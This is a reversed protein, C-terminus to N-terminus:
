LGDKRKLVGHKEVMKEYIPCDGKEEDSCMSKDKIRKNPISALCFWKKSGGGCRKCIDVYYCVM